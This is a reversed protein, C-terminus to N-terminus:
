SSSLKSRDCTDRGAKCADLNQAANQADPNPGSSQAFLLIPWLTVGAALLCKQWTINMNIKGSSDCLHLSDDNTAGVPVEVRDRDPM